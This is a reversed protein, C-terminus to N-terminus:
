PAPKWETGVLQWWQGNGDRVFFSATSTSRFPVAQYRRPELKLPPGQDPETKDELQGRTQVNAPLILNVSQSQCVFPTRDAAHEIVWGGRTSHPATSKKM